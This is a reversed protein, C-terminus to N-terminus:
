DLRVATRGLTRRHEHEELATAAEELAVRQGVVPRVDGKAVLALLDAHVADAVDRGFPNFGTRRLAPPLSPLYAGIVGVISFNGTCAPRLPVGATGNEPDGAFGVVLYRGGRAICRWADAVLSGGVLDCIIEPGREETYDLVTDAFNEELHDITLEAGLRRCLATKDPGGATAFVRAGKARALQIAATGLGSAGATILVSEGAQLAGREFLALHITHFPIIFAAAEADDLEPPAEFVSVAPCIAYEALGGQAMQTVAAVRKGIWEEAGEGAADVVGCVDMGLTFPPPMPITTIRGYCRDIDNFNLSAAAVRVRVQGPGPVPVEIDEIRLAERPPGNEVVRLARMLESGRARELM